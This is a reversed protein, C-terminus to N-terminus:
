YNFEMSIPLIYAFVLLQIGNLMWCKVHNSVKTYRADQYLSAGPVLINYYTFIMRDCDDIEYLM